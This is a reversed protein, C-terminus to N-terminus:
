RWRLRYAGAPTGVWVDDGMPVVDLVPGAPIDLPVTFAEWRGVEADWHAVGGPSAVWVDRGDSALRLPPGVRQLEADGVPRPDSSTDLRFLGVDTLVWTAEAIAVDLAVGNAIFSPVGPPAAPAGQSGPGSLPLVRLGQESAIWLTDGRVALRAARGGMLLTGTLAEGTTDLAVLGRDTGAWIRGRHHLVSRVRNSPLGESSTFRSWASRTSAADPDFRYLGDEAAFWVRHGDDTIDAVFGSPAGQMADYQWWRGLDPTAAAVGNQRGRGDGGFWLRDGIRAISAAGPTVLGFRLWERRARRSQFRVIGGGATAIWFEDPEPSRAIDTIRWRRLEPDLGLSSRAAALYPDNQGRRAQARVPGPVEGADAAFGVSSISEVRWWEGGALIWTSADSPYPIIREIAGFSPLSVPEWDRFGPMGRSLEGGDTGVWIEGSVPDVGLATIASAGAGPVEIPPRWSEAVFDYVLVAGRTAALLETRSVAIAGIEGGAPVVTRLDPTWIRGQARAPRPVTTGLAAVAAVVALGSVARRRLRTATRLSM